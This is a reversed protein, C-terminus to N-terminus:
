GRGASLLVQTLGDLSTAASLHERAHRRGAAGLRAREVGDQGLSEVAQLLAAPEEPAVRRGGGSREVEVATGGGAPVAAVVPVGANFYSRLKSPLSTTVASARENVLLVDAAALVDPFDISDAPPLLQLAPIGALTLV